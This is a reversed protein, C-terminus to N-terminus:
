RDEPLMITICPRADDIDVAGCQAVLTFLSKRGAGKIIVKFAVESSDRSARIALGAMHCVDHWIGKFDQYSYRPNKVAQEMIAFLGSTMYVPMRFHQPTVDGFDGINADVQVGDDLARERTYSYITKGFLETMSNTPQTATATNTTTM